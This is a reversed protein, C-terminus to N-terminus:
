KVYPLYYTRYLLLQFLFRTHTDFFDQNIGM